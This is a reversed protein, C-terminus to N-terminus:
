RRFLRWHGSLETCTFLGHLTRFSGSLSHLFLNTFSILKLDPTFSFGRYHYHYITLTLWKHYSHHPSTRMILHVLLLTFLILNVSCLLSSIGCSLHHM